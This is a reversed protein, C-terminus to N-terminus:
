PEGVWSRELVRTGDVTLAVDGEARRKLLALALAQGHVSAASTVEGALEGSELTVAAGPATERALRLRALRKPARGRHELMVVPEQGLYCGKTFSVLGKLGAEQPLLGIDLEPAGPWGAAVRLAEAEEFPVATADLEALAAAVDGVALFSVELGFLEGPVSGEPRREFGEVAVIREHWRPHLEVDEMIIYRDLEEALEEARARPVVLDLGEPRDLVHVAALIRGNKSLRLGRISGGAPLAAVDCTLQGNLWSRADDGRIELRTANLDFLRTM